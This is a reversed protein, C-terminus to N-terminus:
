TQVAKPEPLLACLKEDVTVRIDGPPLGLAVADTVADDLQQKALAWLREKSEKTLRM